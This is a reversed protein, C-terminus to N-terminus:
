GFPLLTNVYIVAKPAIGRTRLLSFFLAAQSILFTVLTLARYKSRRYWYRQVEIDVDDLFGPGESGVFLMSRERNELEDIVARLIRPSGSRDNRLHVFVIM